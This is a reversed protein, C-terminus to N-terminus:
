GIRSSMGTINTSSALTSSYADTPLTRSHRGCPLRTAIKRSRDSPSQTRVVGAMWIRDRKRGSRRSATITSSRKRPIKSSLGAMSSIRGGASLAKRPQRGMSARFKCPPVRLAQIVASEPAFYRAPKACKRYRNGYLTRMGRACAVSCTSRVTWVASCRALAM